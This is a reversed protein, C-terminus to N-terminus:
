CQHRERRDQYENGGGDKVLLFYAELLNQAYRDTHCTNSEEEQELLIICFPDSGKQIM